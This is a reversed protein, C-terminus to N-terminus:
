ERSGIHLLLGIEGPYDPDIVCRACYSDEKGTSDSAQAAWLTQTASEAELEISENNHRRTSAKWGKSSLGRPWRLILNNSYSAFVKTFPDSPTM